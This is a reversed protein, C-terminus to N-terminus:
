EEEDELDEEEDYDTEQILKDLAKGMQQLRDQVELNETLITTADEDQLIAAMEQGAKIESGIEAFDILLEALAFRTRELQYLNRSALESELLQIDSKHINIEEELEFLQEKRKEERRRVPNEYTIVFSLISTLVPLIGLLITVGIQANTTATPMQESIKQAAAGSLSLGLGGSEFLMSRTNLRIFFSMVAECIFAAVISCAMGIEMRNKESRSLVMGLVVPLMDMTLACIGVVAINLLFSQRLLLDYTTYFCICDFAICAAVIMWKVPEPIRAAQGDKIIKLLINKENRM